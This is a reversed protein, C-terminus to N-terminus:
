SAATRKNGELWGEGVRVWDVGCYGCAVVDDVPGEIQAVLRVASRGCYPCAAESTPEVREYVAYGRQHMLMAIDRLTTAEPVKAMMRLQAEDLTLHSSLGFKHVVYLRM